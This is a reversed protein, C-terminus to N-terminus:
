KLDEPKFLPVDLLIGLYLLSTNITSKFGNDQLWAKRNPEGGGTMTRPDLTIEEIVANVDIPVEVSEKGEFKRDADIYLLRVESEHRFPERKLSLGDAHGSIGAFAKERYTGVANAVYQRLEDEEFYKVASLYCKDKNEAGMGDALCHVLKRPTTRLRVGEYPFFSSNLGINKDVESYIRWLADSEPITTWCQGFTPFRNGGLFVQKIRKDDDLYSYGVRSILNEYPDTWRSTAPLFLHGSLLGKLFRQPHIRYIHTDLSLGKSWFPGIATAGGM